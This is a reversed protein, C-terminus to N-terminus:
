YLTFNDHSFFRFLDSNFTNCLHHKLMNGLAVFIIPKKTSAFYKKQKSLHKTLYFFGGPGFDRSAM